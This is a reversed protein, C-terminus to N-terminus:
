GARSSAAADSEMELFPAAQINVSYSHAARPVTRCEQEVKRQFEQLLEQFKPMDREAIVADYAISSMPHRTEGRLKWEARSAVLNGRANSKAEGRAHTYEVMLKFHRGEQENLRLGRLVKPLVWRSIRRRGQLIRMLLRPSRLGARDALRRISFNPDAARWYAIFDRLYNRYDQYLFVTPPGDWVRQIQLKM